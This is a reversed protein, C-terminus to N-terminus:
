KLNLKFKGDAKRVIMNEMEKIDDNMIKAQSLRHSLSKLRQATYHQIATEVNAKEDGLSLMTKNRLKRRIAPSLRTSVLVKCVSSGSASATSVIRELLTIVKEQTDESCQDLGDLVIHIYRVRSPLPSAAPLIERLLQDLTARSPTKKKLVLEQYAHAVLDTNSQILQTFISRLIQDYETSAMESHTCFHTIVLSQESTRLFTAVQTALVSKGTGPHGHFILFSCGQSCRMWASLKAQKTVWACTGPYKLAQDAISEFIRAQDSGDTKLLGIIALYQASTHEKEEAAMKALFEQRWAEVTERMRKAQSINVANATKDVLNEHERLDQIIGDFRRQFRGWWSLFLV